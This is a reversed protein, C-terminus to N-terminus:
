ISPNQKALWQTWVSLEVTAICLDEHLVCSIKKDRCQFVHLWNGDHWLAKDLIWFCVVPVHKDYTMKKLLQRQYLQSWNHLRRQPLGVMALLSNVFCMTLRPHEPSGFLNKFVVDVRPDIAIMTFAELRVVGSPDVAYAPRAWPMLRRSRVLCSRM